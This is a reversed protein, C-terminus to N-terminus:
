PWLVDHAAKPQNTTASLHLYDQAQVNANKNEHNLIKKHKSSKTKCAVTTGPCLETSNWGSFM